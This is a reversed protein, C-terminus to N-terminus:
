QDNGLEAKIKDHLKINKKNNLKESQEGYKRFYAKLSESDPLMGYDGTKKIWDDLVTQMEILKDQYDPDNALNHIEYPDHRLDYLEEAPLPEALAKQYPDLQNQKNLINIIHYLPHNAKRYATSAENVSFDHNFNKIYEFAMDRVARSKYFVEGIRDSASFIYQRLSEKQTGWFVKGEMYAPKTIGAMALSTASIDIASILQDNIAGTKHGELVPLDDPIYVVMPIKIGSDYLWCKGRTMPRGHDSFFFIITNKDLDLKKLTDLVQAVEHDLTEISRYYNAWDGRTAAVDPYYPPINIRTSDIHFAPNTKFPRHTEHLCLEAFFPKNQGILEGWHRFDLQKSVDNKFSWDTKGTGPKDAINGALYGNARFIDNLTMVGDPLPNALSDPYRMHHANISTQYMGTILATRSPSCVAATTFVNTFKTGKTAFQDINPTKVVDNGYCGLDQSMDEAIVWLINPRQNTNERSANNCSFCLALSLMLVFFEHKM